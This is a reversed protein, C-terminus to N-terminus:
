VTFSNEGSEEVLKLLDAFSFSPVERDRVLSKLVSLVLTLVSTQEGVHYTDLRLLEASQQGSVLSEKETWMGEEGPSESAEVQLAIIICNSV